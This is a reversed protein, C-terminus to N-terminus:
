VYVAHKAEKLQAYTDDVHVHLFSSCQVLRKVMDHLSVPSRDQWLDAYRTQIHYAALSLAEMNVPHLIHATMDWNALRYATCYVDHMVQCWIWQM